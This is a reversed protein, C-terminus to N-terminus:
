SRVAMGTSGHGGAGRDSDPLEDVEQWRVRAVQQFLMQAVRIGRQISQAGGHNILNVLIEGRYGADITGPANLVTIRHSAALGSRPHILGVWGDPIAVAIGTRVLRNHGEPLFVDEDAYLDIGADSAHVYAPLPLPPLNTGVRKIQVPIDAVRRQQRYGTTFAPTSRMLAAALQSRWNRMSM